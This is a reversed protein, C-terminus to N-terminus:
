APFTFAARRPMRFPLMLQTVPHVFRPLSLSEHVAECAAGNLTVGVHSRTYFPADELVAILRPPAESRVPRAMGWFGKRLDHRPPTKRQEVVGDQFRQGFSFAAGDRLTADYIVEVGNSGAARMWNWERFGDELPEEGWNMDHYATGEWTLRPSELAVAIRARPAVAQWHHGQDPSLAVPHNYITNAKLRIEGHLPFPLPMCTEAVEVVLENGSWRMSSPGVRFIDASKKVAAHGRETMAWRRKGGYLAINIACHHEPDGLGKRRAWRYYPSFVSGVFGIVVLGNRGDDSLADIYWWRYGNQSVPTDFRPRCALSTDGAHRLTCGDARGSGSPHQRGRSLAGPDGNAGKAKSIDGDM